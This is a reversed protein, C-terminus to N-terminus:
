QIATLKKKIELLRDIYSKMMGVGRLDSILQGIDSSIEDKLHQTDTLKKLKEIANEGAQIRSVAWAPEDRVMQFITKEYGESDYYVKGSNDYFERIKSELIYEKTLGKTPEFVLALNDDIFKELNKM